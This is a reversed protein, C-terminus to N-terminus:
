VRQETVYELTTVTLAQTREDGFKRVSRLALLKETRASAFAKSFHMRSREHQECLIARVECRNAHFRFESRLRNWVCAEAIGPVHHM